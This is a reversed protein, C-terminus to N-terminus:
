ELTEVKDILDSVSGTSSIGARELKELIDQAEAETQVPVEPEAEEAELKSPRVLDVIAAVLAPILAMIAQAIATCITLVGDGKKKRNKRNKKNKEAKTTM